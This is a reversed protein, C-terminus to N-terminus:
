KIRGEQKLFEKCRLYIAAYGKAIPTWLAERLDPPLAYYCTKCFSHKIQKKAGCACVALHLERYAMQDPTESPRANREVREVSEFLTDITSGDHQRGGRYQEPDRYTM